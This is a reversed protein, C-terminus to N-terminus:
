CRERLEAQARREKGGADTYVLTVLVPVDKPLFTDSVACFTNKGHGRHGLFVNLETAEGVPFKELTWSQFSFPGDAVPWLVPADAPGKAYQTYPGPDPAFGGRVLEKGCWKMSFMTRAHEGEVRAIELDTHEQKVVPDTFRGIDFTVQDGDLKGAIREGASTLDGDANRDFHLVDYHPADARSKDLVAWVRTKAEAGFVYLAYLPEKATYAPEKKIKREIKALDPPEAGRSAPGIAVAAACAVLFGASLRTM